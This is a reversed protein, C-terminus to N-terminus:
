IYVWRHDVSAQLHDLTFRMTHMRRPGFRIALLTLLQLVLLTRADACLVGGVWNGGKENWPMRKGATERGREEM